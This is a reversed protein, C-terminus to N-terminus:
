PLDERCVRRGQEVLRARAFRLLEQDEPKLYGGSRKILALLKTALDAMAEREAAVLELDQELTM